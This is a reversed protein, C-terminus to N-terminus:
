TDANLVLYLTPRSSYYSYTISPKSSVDRRWSAPYSSGSIGYRGGRYIRNTTKNAEQTWEWYNGAIDYINQASWAKSYGTIQPKGHGEIDAKGTSDNYNGWSSSNTDIDYGKTKLWETVEDWQNGYIMTSQAYKTNVINTCAKKLNYWNPAVDATLVNGKKVTPEEVSGTLEFRGIFFGKYYKISEYTDTYEKVMKEAMDEMNSAIISYYQSQSDYDTLIDPERIGSTTGPKTTNYSENSRVRLNSYVNTTTSVGSLKVTEEIYMTTYDEVPIWVFQNGTARHETDISDTIVIGDDVKNIGESVGVAFGGPIWATNGDSDIYKTTREYIDSFREGILILGTEEQTSFEEINEETFNGVLEVKIIYTKEELWTFTYTNEVKTDKLEYDGNEERIYYKYQPKEVNEIRVVNVEVSITKAEEDVTYEINSIRTPLIEATGLYEGLEPVERNLRFTFGNLSIEAEGVHAEPEREYIFNDLENKLFEEKTMETTTIKEAFADALVLSLREQVEAKEQEIKAKQVRKILGDDTFISNISITALIILIM